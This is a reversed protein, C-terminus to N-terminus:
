NGQRANLASKRYRKWFNMFDAELDRGEVEKFAEETAELGGVGSGTLELYKPLVKRYPEFDKSAYAGKELFYTLAWATCYNLNADGSYFQAQTMKLIRKMNRAYAAPNRSVWMARNGEDVVKVTNNAPNYRVGEFFTAHGENFWIAHDAGATAYHLYQHFAEHRMTNQADKQDEAAILLEERNPDWLGCSMQDDDGTSARYERYGALTKFVRVTCLGVEKQKPVYFEYSKRMAEMLKMADRIFRGGAAKNLDTMFKYERTAQEWWKMSSYASSMGMVSDSLSDAADKLMKEAAAPAVSEVFKFDIYYTEGSKLTKTTKYKVGEGWPYKDPKALRMENGKKDKWAGLLEKVYSLEKEDYVKETHTETGETVTRTWAQPAPKPLGHSGSLVKMKLKGEAVLEPSSNLFPAASAMGAAAAFLAAMYAARM